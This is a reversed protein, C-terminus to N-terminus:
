LCSLLTHLNILNHTNISYQTRSNQGNKCLHTAHKRYQFKMWIFKFERPLYILDRWMYVAGSVETNFLSIYNSHCYLIILSHQLLENNHYQTTVNNYFLPLKHVCWLGSSFLALGPVAHVLRNICNHMKGTAHWYTHQMLSSWQLTIISIKFCNSKHVSNISSILVM